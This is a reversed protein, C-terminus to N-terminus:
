RPTYTLVIARASESTTEYLYQVDAPFSAYDGPALESIRDVPGAILKGGLVLAHARAGSSRPQEERVHGAPLTLQLLDIRGNPQITELAHLDVEECGASRAHNTRVTRIDGIPTPLLLDAVTVSLAGALATLTNITPNARGREIGSLTAKSTATSRALESLSMHNAVRLRRLNSALLGCVSERTEPHIMAFSDNM